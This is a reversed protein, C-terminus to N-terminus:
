HCSEFSVKPNNKDQKAETRHNMSLVECKAKVKILAKTWRSFKFAKFNRSGLTTIARGVGDEDGAPATCLKCKIHHVASGAPITECAKGSRESPNM